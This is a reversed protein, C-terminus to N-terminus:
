KKKKYTLILYTYILYITSMMILLEIRSVCNISTTYISYQTKTIYLITLVGDKIHM